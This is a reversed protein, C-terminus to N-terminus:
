LSTITPQIIPTEVVEETKTESSEEETEVDPAPILKLEIAYGRLEAIEDKLEFTNTEMVEKELCAVEAKLAGLKEVKAEYEDLKKQRKELEKLIVSM